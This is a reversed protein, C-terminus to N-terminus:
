GESDRIDESDKCGLSVGLVVVWGLLLSGVEALCASVRLREWRIQVNCPQCDGLYVWRRRLREWRV